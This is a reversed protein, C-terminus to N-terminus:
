QSSENFRNMALDFSHEVAFEVADAARQVMADVVLREAKDFAGLVHGIAGEATQPRGIGLRIRGFNDTGLQEILSKIGNHGGSSGSQRLRLQGVSFDMDDYAVILDRALDVESYFSVMERVSEGSLNMFSQPKVLVIKENGIRTEAVYAKWKNRDCVVQGRRALDDIVWFGVNHRTNIYKVGPNGLGVVLKM